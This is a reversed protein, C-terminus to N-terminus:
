PACHQHRQAHRSKRATVKVPKRLLWFLGFGNGSDIIITPPKNMAQIAALLEAKAAAFAAPDTIDKSVDADVHLSQLVNVDADKAKPIQKGDTAQRYRAPRKARQRQFVARLGERDRDRYGQCVRRPRRCQGQCILPRFDHRNQPQDGDPRHVPGPLSALFEVAKMPNPATTTSM